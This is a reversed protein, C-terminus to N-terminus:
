MYTMVSYQTSDCCNEFDLKSNNERLNGFFYTLLFYLTSLLCPSFVHMGSRVTIWINAGSGYDKIRKQFLYFCLQTEARERQDRITCRM